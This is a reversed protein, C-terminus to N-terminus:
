KGYEFREEMHHCVDREHFVHVWVVIEKTAEAYLRGAGVLVTEDDSTKGFGGGLGDAGIAEEAADSGEVVVYALEKVGVIKGFILETAEIDVLKEGGYFRGLHDDCMDNLSLLKCPLMAQWLGKNVDDALMVAGGEDVVEVGLLDLVGTPVDVGDILGLEAIGAGGGSGLFRSNNHNGVGDLRGRAGKILDILLDECLEDVAEYGLFLLLPLKVVTEEGKLLETDDFPRDDLRNPDGAM